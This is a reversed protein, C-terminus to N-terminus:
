TNLDWLIIYGLDATQYLPFGTGTPTGEPLINVPVGVALTGGTGDLYLPNSVPQMRYSTISGSAKDIDDPVKEMIPVKVATWTVDPWVGSNVGGWVNLGKDAIKRKWGDERWALRFAMRTFAVGTVDVTIGSTYNWFHLTGIPFVRPGGNITLTVAASNVCGRGLTGYALDLSAWDPTDTTFAIVIDEVSRPVMIGTIPDSTSNVLPNGNIDRQVEEEFERTTIDIQVNWRDDSPSAPAASTNPLPLAYICEVVWFRHNKEVQRPNKQQLTMAGIISGWAPIGSALAAEGPTGSQDTFEVQYPVTITATAPLAFNGTMEGHRYVRKVTAM